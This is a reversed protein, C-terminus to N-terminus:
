TPMSEEWKKGRFFVMLMGPIAILTSFIFFNTWGFPEAVYGAWGPIVVRPIGMFSTLLAFQTASFRRDTLKLMFASFAATGMGSTITEFGVVAGLAYLRNIVGNTVLENMLAFGLTSIAQFFGFWLLCKRISFKLLFFGGIFTGIFTGWFGVLKGIAAIETKIYGIKLYFTTLLNAAFNDGVKYLLIFILIEFAGPRTLYNLFPNIVAEKINKPSSVEKVPNPAIMTGIFGLICLGAFVMFVFSWSTWEALALGFVTTLFRFGILYSNTAVASGFGLEDDDLVDRRFADVVIDHSAGFFSILFSLILVPYITSKPDFLSLGLICIFMGAQSVYMWGKRRSGFITFRDMVPSWLFKLTYPLQVLSVLGITKIDIGADTFWTQVLTLVVGLPIGSALGLFTITLM